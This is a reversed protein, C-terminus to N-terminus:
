LHNNSYFCVNVISVGTTIVILASLCMLEILTSRQYDKINEMLRNRHQQVSELADKLSAIEERLLNSTEREEVILNVLTDKEQERDCLEDKSDDVDLEDTPDPRFESDFGSSVTSTDDDTDLIEIFKRKVGVIKKVPGTNSRTIVPM